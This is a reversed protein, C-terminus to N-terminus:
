SSLVTSNALYYAPVGLGEFAMETLEERMERPTWTSETLLLPHETSDASLSDYAYNVM